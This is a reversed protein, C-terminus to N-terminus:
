AGDTTTRPARVTLAGELARFTLPNHMQAREGDRAVQVRRKRTEIVIERGTRLRYDRGPETRRLAIKLARWILALRGGDPALYLALEGARVAEAGSLAYNELQYPRV